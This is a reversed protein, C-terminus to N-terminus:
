YAWLSYFFAKSSEWLFDEWSTRYVGSLIAHPYIPFDNPYVAQFTKKARYMHLRSTILVVDRCRLTEILVLTQQANGWTTGSRKELVVDAINLDGYYTWRPFIERLSARPNVGSIILKKISHRALLDFGERVRGPSGTLVVACDASHDETWANIQYSAVLKAEKVFKWGLFFLGVLIFIFILWKRIKTRNRFYEIFSALIKM